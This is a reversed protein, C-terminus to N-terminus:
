NSDPIERVVVRSGEVKIIIISSGKSIFSGETVVDVREEKVLATGSPRLDTLAKGEVGLLDLRNPNSVYGQETKTADTLIMKRFFKMQKGFVKVLLIFVLISVTVAILLSITMHVPDGTALFLSGVIATFGLLGIIGGPIFFEVLVLIVGIIFMALSEYGTIGAVLHGYFFLVLSTIGIVGPIGFGPSFLEMVIGIGAITLLIPVVIPNTLFRALKEPFSEEISRIDADEVGLISYLEAKGSVTGESYGAKKAQEATFTLLKGKEAGYEPLDIDVDAMAQAYIPDRGNQEAATKMAALWYSQAKKGAANGTSDIVAASGMTASPVMYIEDASLSIYAGASLARNNVYAVTKIPSDSLLKAIEGAADVAGGPTNVEFVVLDADAAEATTLARELFASLGKEVTEEIPVHYVIKENASVTSGGFSSMTFLLGFLLVSLYRWIKM